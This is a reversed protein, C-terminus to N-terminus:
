MPIDDDTLPPADDAFSAGEGRQKVTRLAETLRKLETKAPPGSLDIKASPRGNYIEVKLPIRMHALAKQDNALEELDRTDCDFGCRKLSARAMGMSKDTLFILVEGNAGSDTTVLLVVASKTGFERVSNEVIEAEYSGLPLPM